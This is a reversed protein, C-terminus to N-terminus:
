PVPSDKPPWKRNGSGPFYLSELDGSGYRLPAFTAEIHTIRGQEILRAISWYPAIPLYAMLSRQRKSLNMPMLSPTDRQVAEEDRDFSQACCLTIAIMEGHHSDLGPSVWEVRAVIETLAEDSVPYRHGPNECIFYSQEWSEIAALLKQPQPRPKSRPM